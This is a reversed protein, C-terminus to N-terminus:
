KVFDQEIISWDRNEDSTRDSAVITFMFYDEDWVDDPHWGIRGFCTYTQLPANVPVNHTVHGQSNGVPVTITYPGAIPNQPYPNGNWLMIDTWYQLTVYSSTNNSVYVTYGLQGGRLVITTDPEISVTVDPLGGSVQCIGEYPFYNHGTVTVDMSGQSVPEITFTVMGNSLTSDVEYVEDGKYLCVVAGQVPAGDEKVEVTFDQSGLPISNPHNVELRRPIATWINMEPDGVTTFGRYEEVDGFMSYVNQRGSECAEGFTRFGYRFVGDFFGDCVASRLTAGPGFLITTTTAFYGAAGRPTTPTGTLFWQEAAAPTSGTGITVCTISLVIPLRAGNTTLAPNCAFPSYWNNVGQGRYLLFARGNNIRDIVDDDNDGYEDSLIDITNYGARRMLGQAYYIDNWYITDHPANDENVILCSNIFWLSDTMYPTREYLLIKNVVTQAETTNHVTLRGSLIENYIDGDMNTYYNDTYTFEMTPFSLYNPAGVLLLYEPRIQWTNYANEVYAQIENATYGIESLRVVQTRMGKKHKWQALPRIADYFDDHTIILYRAGTEQASLGAVFIIFFIILRKM